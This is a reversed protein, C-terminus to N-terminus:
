DGLKEVFPMANEPAVTVNQGSDSDVSYDGADFLMGDEAAVRKVTGAFTMGYVKWTVRRGIMPHDEIWKM